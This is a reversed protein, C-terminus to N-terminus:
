ISIKKTASFSYGENKKYMELSVGFYKKDSFKRKSSTLSVNPVMKFTKYLLKVCDELDDVSYGTYFEMEDSWLDELPCNELLKRSIYLSSAALVSPLFNLTKIDLLGIELIFQSLMLSKLGGQSVNHFKKLFTLPSVCLIDFDLTKLIEYETKLLETDSFANAMIYTFDKLEPPYIEEYKSAILLAGCGILQFDKTQIKRMGIYRDMLNVALFVSDDHLKFQMGVDVMWDVVLSRCSENIITQTEEMGHPKPLNLIETKKLHLFIDTAFDSVMQINKSNKQEIFNIKRLIKDLNPLPGEMSNNSNIINSDEQDPNANNNKKTFNKYPNLESNETDDDSKEKTSKLPVKEM